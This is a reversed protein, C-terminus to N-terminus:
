KLLGSISYDSAKIGSSKKKGSLLQKAVFLGVPILWRPFDKTEAPETQVSGNKILPQFTEDADKAAKVVVAAEAADTPQEIGILSYYTDRDVKIIDKTSMTYQKDKIIVRSIGFGGIKRHTHHVAEGAKIALGEMEATYAVTDKNTKGFYQEEQWYVGGVVASGLSDMLGFGHYGTKFIQAMDM